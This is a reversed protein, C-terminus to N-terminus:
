QSEFGKWPHRRNEGSKRLTRSYKEEQAVMESIYENMM